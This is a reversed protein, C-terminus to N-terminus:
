TMPMNHYYATLVTSINHEQVTAPEQWLHNSFGTEVIQEADTRFGRHVLDLLCIPFQRQFIVRVFVRIFALFYTSHSRLSYWTERQRFYLWLFSLFKRSTNQVSTHAEVHMELSQSIDAYISM